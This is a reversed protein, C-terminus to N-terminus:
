KNKIIRTLDEISDVIYDFHYTKGNEEYGKELIRRPEFGWTVGITKVRTEENNKNLIKLSSGLDTRTDGVHLVKEPMLNFKNLITQVSYNNPKRLEKGTVGMKKAHESLVQADVFCDFLEYIEESVFLEKVSDDFLNTTNLALILDESKIEKLSDTIGSYLQVPNNLKFQNYEKWVPHEFDDMDCPLGFHDYLGQAGKELAVNYEEIFMNFDKKLKDSFNSKNEPFYKKCNEDWYIFWDHQRKPSQILTGDMDFIISELEKLNNRKKAM